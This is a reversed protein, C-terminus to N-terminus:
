QNYVIQRSTQSFPFVYNETIGKRKIELRVMGPLLKYDSSWEEVWSGEPGPKITTVTSGVLTKETAKDASETDDKIKELMWKKEPPIFFWMALSDVDELLVEKKLLPTIGEVWRKPSPWTALILRGSPDLFLEGLVHNSMGKNFDIQNDYTFVLSKPSGQKFNGGPDSITFFYFDKRPDFEAVALPFITSLRNEMNLMKFNERQVEESKNNIYDIQQYFYTVTSLIIVTLATAILTELLTFHHKRFIKM